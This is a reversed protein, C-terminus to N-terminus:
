SKQNPSKTTNPYGMIYYGIKKGKTNIADEIVWTYEKDNFDGILEKIDDFTYTRVLSAQGDWAYILPIIPLLYTFLLQKTDLPRVFLTMILSMLILITLSIPLFLWWVFTPITNKAVEYILIPEKNQEASKLIKKAIEPKMHHFSAVMTKLGSPAEGINAANVSDAYYEISSNDLKAVENITQKNPHLDTLLLKLSKDKDMLNDFVEPMVGGSGSGLDVIQNFNYAERVKLILSSVVDATGMLKHFVVILKTAGNRFANPLWDFDEFEFLEIRKM